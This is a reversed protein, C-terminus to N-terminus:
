WMDSFGSDTTTIYRPGDAARQEAIQKLLMKYEELKTEVPTIPRGDKLFCDRACIIYIYEQFIEPVDPFDGPNVMETIIYSYELRLEVASNPVPWLMINNKEFWYNAPQGSTWSYLDRQNPTVRNLKCTTATDGSGGTVYSIRIDQLFDSPLAYAQQNIVTTTKVCKSYFQQNANILHKQVEFAALNLRQTMVPLTFYGNNPDDVLDSVLVQLESLTLAM